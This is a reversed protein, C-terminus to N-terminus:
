GEIARYGLDAIATFIDEKKVKSEDFELDSFKKDYDVFISKVGDMGSVLM